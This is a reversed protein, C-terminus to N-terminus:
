SLVREQQAAPEVADVVWPTRSPHQAYIEISRGLADAAIQADARVERRVAAARAVDPSQGEIEALHGCERSTDVSLTISRGALSYDIM